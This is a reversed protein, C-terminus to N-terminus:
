KRIPNIGIGIGETPYGTGGPNQGPMIPGINIGPQRTGLNMFIGPNMGPMNMGGPMGPGMMGPGMMGSNMGPMTNLMQPNSGIFDALDYIRTYHKEKLKNKSSVTVVGNNATYAPHKEGPTELDEEAQSLGSAKELILDLAKSMPIKQAIEITIQINRDIGSQQELAEWMPEIEIQSQSELDLLVSELPENLYSLEVLARDMKTRIFGESLQLRAWEEPTFLDEISAESENVAYPKVAAPENATLGPMGPKSVPKPSSDLRAKREAEMLEETLQLLVRGSKDEADVTLLLKLTAITNAYDRKQSFDLALEYLQRVTEAQKEAQEREKEMQRALEARKRDMEQKKQTKAQQDLIQERFAKVEGAMREYRKTGLLQKNGEIESLMSENVNLIEAFRNEKILEECENMSDNFRVEIAHIQVQQQSIIRELLSKRNGASRSSQSVIKEQPEPAGLVATSRERPGESGSEASTLLPKVAPEKLQGQADTLVVGALVLMIGVAWVMQVKSNKQGQAIMIIRRRVLTGNELIGAMNPLRQGWSFYELLRVITRGYHQAEGGEMRSLALSDCALERDSRMRSFAWWILPNYWHLAQLLAMLWGIGIDFRKLHALEHMFVYHMQRRSLTGMLGVPLLLRPRVFGFLVPSKVKASIVVPLITHVGMARKCRELIDLVPGERVPRKHKVERGFLCNSLGIYGLMGLVGALWVAPLAEVLMAWLSRGTVQRAQEIDGITYNAAGGAGVSAAPEIYYEKFSNGWLQNAPFNHDKFHVEDGLEATVALFEAPSVPQDMQVMEVSEIVERSPEFAFIPCLNYISIPSEPAWPLM